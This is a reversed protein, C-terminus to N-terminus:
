SRGRLYLHLQYSDHQYLYVRYLVTLVAASRLIGIYPGIAM